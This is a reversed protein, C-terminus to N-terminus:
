APPTKKKRWSAWGFLRVMRYRNERRVWSAGGTVMLARFLDDAGRRRWNLDGTRYIYDHVVAPIVLGKGIKPAIGRFAAPISALDTLFDVPVTLIEAGSYDYVHIPQLLMWNGGDMLRMDLIDSTHWGKFSRVPYSM